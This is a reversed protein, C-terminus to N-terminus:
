RQWHDPWLGGTNVQCEVKCAINLTWLMIYNCLPSKRCIPLLIYHIMPDTDKITPARNMGLIWVKCEYNSYIWYFILEFRQSECLFDSILNLTLLLWYIKKNTLGKPKNPISHSLNTNKLSRKHGEYVPGAGRWVKGKVRYSLYLIAQSSIRKYTGRDGAGEYSQDRIEFM